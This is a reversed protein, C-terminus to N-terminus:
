FSECVKAFVCFVDNKRRFNFSFIQPVLIDNQKTRQGAGHRMANIVLNIKLWSISYDIFIYRNIDNKSPGKVLAM